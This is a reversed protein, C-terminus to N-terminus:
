DKAYVYVLSSYAGTKRANRNSRFGIRLAKLWNKRGTKYQESLLAAYYADWPMPYVAVESFGHKKMMRPVARRSFHWLHRPVDYAAWYKGYYEADFSRYNPLALFVYGGDDLLRRIHELYGSVDPLHELVHWLSIV